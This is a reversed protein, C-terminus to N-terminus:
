QIVAAPPDCSWMFVHFADANITEADREVTFCWKLQQSFLPFVKKFAPSSLLDPRFARQPYFTKELDLLHPVLECGPWTIDLLRWLAECKSMVTTWREAKTSKDKKKGRERERDNVCSSVSILQFTKSKNRATVYLLAHCLYVEPSFFFLFFFMGYHVKIKWVKLGAGAGKFRGSRLRWIILRLWTAGSFRSSQM